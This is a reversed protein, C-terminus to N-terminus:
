SQSPFIGFLSIIFSVALFPMLNNHPQGGPNRNVVGANMTNTPAGAKFVSAGGGAFVNGSPSGSTFEGKANVAHTHSPIENTTLTHNEEGALQGIVFGSGQHIPIRGQLNPLGFTTQGDGGYTTGILQFLTPNQDIAMLQGNCFAWGQPAFNGGFMRIEGVFPQGM